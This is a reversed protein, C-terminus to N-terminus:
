TFLHIFLYTAPVSAGRLLHRRRERARTSRPLADDRDCDALRLPRFYSWDQFLLRTEIESLLGCCANPAPSVVSLSVRKGLTRM